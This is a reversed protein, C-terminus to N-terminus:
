VEKEKDRGCIDALKCYECNANDAGPNVPFDGAKMANKFKTLRDSLKQKMDDDFVCPITKRKRLYRYEGYSIPTGLRDMMYAYIVVQLCSDIDDKVHKVTRGTKFDAILYNGDKDKEVRDPYGYVKIGSEHTVTKKEEASLVENDPDLDYANGMVDIFRQKERKADEKNLPVYEKMFDDFAAGARDLFENRGPRKELSALWEMISHALTGFQKNDIISFPDTAEEDEIGLVQGLLFSRPCGFFSELKTPAYGKEALAVEFAEAEPEAQEHSLAHGDTYAQGIEDAPAAKCKFYGTHKFAKKLDDTGSGEGHEERYIEFLVSSPNSGRTEAANYSSYSLQVPIGLSGALRLLGKLGLVKAKIRNVSTPMDNGFMEYDSDLILYNESPKGPYNDASLGAVFLNSRLASFAGNFSTVYLAGERAPESCM